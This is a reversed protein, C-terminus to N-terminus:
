SGESCEEHTGNRYSRDSRQLQATVFESADCLLLDPINSSNARIASTECFCSSCLCSYTGNRLFVAHKFHRAFVNLQFEVLKKREYRHLLRYPVLDMQITKGKGGKEVTFGHFSGHHQTAPIIDNKEWTEKLFHDLVNLDKYLKYLSRFTRKKNNKSRIIANHRSVMYRIFSNDCM